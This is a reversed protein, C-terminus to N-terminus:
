FVTGDARVVTVIANAGVRVMVWSGNKEYTVTYNGPEDYGAIRGSHSQEIIDDSVTMAGAVRSLVNVTAYQADSMDFGFEERYNESTTTASMSCTYCVHQCFAFSGGGNM